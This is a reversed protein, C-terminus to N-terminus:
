LGYRQWLAREEIAALAGAAWTEPEISRGVRFRRALWNERKAIRKTKVKTGYRERLVSRLDGMGDILGLALAERATWFEGTFVDGEEGRLREGRRDRVHDKFTEHLDRLVRNLKDVEEPVEPKFPDLIAKREGATHVRREIGHREILGGLGFGQSIVGISGVISAPDAYIEDAACALWYGGSAAVDEVFAVVPVDKEDALARIRKAILSSQVPSGGPSNIALAVAALPKPKFAAEIQGSLGALTMGGRFPGMRGIVGGLPLVTVLPPPNRFREIPLHSLISRLSM